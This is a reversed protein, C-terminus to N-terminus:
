RELKIITFKICTGLFVTLRLTQSIVDRMKHFRCADGRGLRQYRISQYDINQLLLTIAFRHNMMECVWADPMSKSILRM